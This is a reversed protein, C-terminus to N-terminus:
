FILSPDQGSIDPVSSVAVLSELMKKFKISLARYASQGSAFLTAAGEPPADLCFFASGQLVVLFVVVNEIM